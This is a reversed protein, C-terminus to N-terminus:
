RSKRRRIISGLIVFAGVFLSVLASFAVINATNLGGVQEQTLESEQKEHEPTQTAQPSAEDQDTEPLETIEVEPAQASSETGGQTTPAVTTSDSDNQGQGQTEGAEDEDYTPVVFVKTPSPTPSVPQIEFDRNLGPTRIATPFSAPGQASSDEPSVDSQTSLIGVLALVSLLPLVILFLLFWRDIKKM